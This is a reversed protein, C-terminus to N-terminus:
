RSKRVEAPVDCAQRRTDTLQLIRWGNPGQVLQVTNVGCYSREDGLYFVYPVWASALPGNVRVEVDWTREDWVREHPQGVSEVFTDVPTESVGATDSPGVATYLRAEDHFVARVATSDGARMGDFLADITARIAQETPAPDEEPQASAVPGLLSAVFLLALCRRMM